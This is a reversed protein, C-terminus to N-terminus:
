EVIVRISETTKCNKGCSRDWNTIPQQNPCKVVYLDKFGNSITYVKCDILEPPLSYDTHTKHYPSCALLFLIPIYKM